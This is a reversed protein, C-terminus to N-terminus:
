KKKHEDIYKKIDSAYNQNGDWIELSGLISDIKKADEPTLRKYFWVLEEQDSITLDNFWKNEWWQINLRFEKSWNVWKIYVSWVWKKDEELKVKINDAIQNNSDVEINEFDKNTIDTIKNEWVWSTSKIWRWLNVSDLYEWYSDLSAWLNAKEWWKYLHESIKQTSQNLISNVDLDKFWIQSLAKVMAEVQRKNTTDTMRIIEDAAKTKELRNSSESLWRVKDQISRVKKDQNIFKWALDAWKTSSRWDITSGVTQAASNMSKMSQGGFIPVNWPASSAIQWVKSGFDQLPKIVAETIKSASMAAMVTWWLIVIGFLKLILAWVIWLWSSWVSNMFNSADKSKSSVAWKIILKVANKDKWITISWADDTSEVAIEQTWLSSSGWSLWQWVVYMFLLWFSLALMTYVPVMALSIFEKVNFKAFFGDWWDKKDFFYMLGFVPSLMTYIWIYIWRIMLVMWLAIILIAYVLVFLFDFVVKVIVDWIKQINSKDDYTINDINDFGIIWYTYMSMIGYISNTASWWGTMLNSLSISEEWCTIFDWGTKSDWTNWMSKIDITCVKPVEVTQLMNKYDPFSDIPLTLASVTLIASISLVLQVFFWSFPVIIVWVIFKPLAQKLQYQDANKWIINMFAIWILIFAFVFYVLNSVMIWIEKFKVTMWFLSGNIWEPSLFMTSLYTMLWLLVSVWKLLWNFFEVADKAMSSEETTITLAFASDWMLFSIIFFSSIFLFTRKNILLYQKINSLIM